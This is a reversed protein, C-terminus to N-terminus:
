LSKAKTGVSLTSYVSRPDLIVGLVLSFYLLILMRTKQSIQMCHM